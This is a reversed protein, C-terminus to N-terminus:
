LSNIAQLINQIAQSQPNIDVSFTRGDKVYDEIRDLIAYINNIGMQLYSTDVKIYDLYEKEIIPRTKVEWNSFLRDHLLGWL